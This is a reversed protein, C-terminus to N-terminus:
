EISNKCSLSKYLRKLDVRGMVVLYLYYYAKLPRLPSGRQGRRSSMSQGVSERFCAVESARGARIRTLPDPGFGRRARM